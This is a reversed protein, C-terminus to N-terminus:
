QACVCIPLVPSLIRWELTSVHSVAAWLCRSGPCPPWTRSAPLVPSRAQVGVCPHPSPEPSGLAQGGCQGGNATPAPLILVSWPPRVFSTDQRLASTFHSVSGRALCSALRGVGEGGGGAPAPAQSGGSPDSVRPVVSLLRGPTPVWVPLQPGGGM